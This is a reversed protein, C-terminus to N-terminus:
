RMWNSWSVPPPSMCFHCGISFYTGFCEMKMLIDWMFLFKDRLIRQRQVGLSTLVKFITDKSSCSIKRSRNEEVFVSVIKSCGEAIRRSDVLLDDMKIRHKKVQLKSWPFLLTSSVNRCPNGGHPRNGPWQM